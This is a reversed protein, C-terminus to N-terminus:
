ESREPRQHSRRRSAPRDSKSELRQELRRELWESEHVEYLYAEVRDRGITGSLLAADVACGPTSVHNCDRFRCNVALALVDAFALAVGDGEGYSAAERIGPTDIIVGGSGIIVLERHTTTHRGQGNSRVEGTALVEEGCLVNTLTSKGAGSEGLLVITLGVIRQRLEEVGAGSVASVTLTEIGALGASVHEAIEKPDACLEAKTLVVIPTAGSDFGVVTLAALRNLRIESDLARIILVLDVNAAMSQREDMKRGVRRVLETRRELRTVSGQDLSVWDGVVLDADPASDIRRLSNETQISVASRDVRVVRGVDGKLSRDVIEAAREDDFGMSSLVTDSV